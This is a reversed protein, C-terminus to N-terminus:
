RFVVNEAIANAKSVQFRQCITRRISMDPLTVALKLLLVSDKSKEEEERLINKPSEDVVKWDILIRVSHYQRWLSGEQAKKPTRLM